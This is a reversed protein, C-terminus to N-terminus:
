FDSNEGYINSLHHKSHDFYMKCATLLNVIRRIVLNRDRSMSFYDEDHYVMGRTAIKLLEAEYEQFNETVLDLNEEIFLLEFLNIIASNILDYEDKDIYVFGPSGFVLTTIAYKM